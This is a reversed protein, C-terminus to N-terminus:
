GGEAAEQGERAADDRPEARIACTGGLPEERTDITVMWWRSSKGYQIM